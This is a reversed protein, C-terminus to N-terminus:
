NRLNKIQNDLQEIYNATEYVFCNFRDYSKKDDGLRPFEKKLELNFYTKTECLSGVLNLKDGGDKLYKECYTELFEKGEKTMEVLDSVEKSIYGFKNTEIDM